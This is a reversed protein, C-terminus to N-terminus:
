VTDFGFKEYLKIAIPRVASTTLYVEKHGLEQLKKLCLSVLVKGYGKGQVKPSVALWHLRGMDDGYDHGGFWATIAGVMVSDEYLLILRSKHEKHAWSSVGFESDFLEPSITNFLDAEKQLSVWDDIRGRNFEVLDCSEPLIPTDLPSELSRVMVVELEDM